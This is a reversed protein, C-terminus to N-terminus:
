NRIVCIFGSKFICNIAFLKGDNADDGFHLTVRCCKHCWPEHGEYWLTDDIREKPDVQWRYVGDDDEAGNLWFSTRNTNAWKRLEEIEGKNRGTPLVGNMQTCNYVAEEYTLIVDDSVYREDASVLALMVLTTALVLLFSIRTKM